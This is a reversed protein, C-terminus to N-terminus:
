SPDGEPTTDPDAVAAASGEIWTAVHAWHRPPLDQRHARRAAHSLREREREAGRREAAALGARAAALEARLTSAPVWSCPWPARCRACRDPGDSATDREHPTLATV